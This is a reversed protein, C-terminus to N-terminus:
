PSAGVPLARLSLVKSLTDFFEVLNQGEVNVHDTSAEVRCSARNNMRFSVEFHNILDAPLQSLFFGYYPNKMGEAFSVNIGCRMSVPKITQALSEAIRAFTHRYSDYLHVPVLIKRDLTVHLCGDEVRLTLCILDDLSIATSNPTSISRRSKGGHGHEIAEVASDLVAQRDRATEELLEFDFSPLWYTHTRSVLLRLRDVFLHFALNRQYLLNLVLSYVGFFTSLVTIVGSYKKAYQDIMPSIWLGFFVLAVIVAVHALVIWLLTKM